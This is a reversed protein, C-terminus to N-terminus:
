RAATWQWCRKRWYSNLRSRSQRQPVSKFLQGSWWKTQKAFGLRYISRRLIVNFIL